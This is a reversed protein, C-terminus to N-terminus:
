SEQPAVGGTSREQEALLASLGDAGEASVTMALGADMQVRTLRRVM